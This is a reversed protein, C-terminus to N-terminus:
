YEYLMTSTITVKSALSRGRTNRFEHYADELNQKSNARHFSYFIFEGVDHGDDWFALYRRKKM